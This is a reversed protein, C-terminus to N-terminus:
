DREEGGRVEIQLAMIEEASWWETDDAVGPARRVYEEWPPDILIVDFKTGFLHPSLPTHRLDMQLFMPPTAADAVIRDKRVLLEQSSSPLPPSLSLPLCRPLPLSPCLSSSSPILLSPCPSVSLCPLHPVSLTSLTVLSTVNADICPIVCAKGQLLASLNVAWRTTLCLRHLGSLM